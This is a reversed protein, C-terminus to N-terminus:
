TTFFTDLCTDLCMRESSAITSASCLCFFPLCYFLSLYVFIEHFVTPYVSVHVINTSLGLALSSYFRFLFFFPLPSLSFCFSVVLSLCFSILNWFFESSLAYMHLSLGLQRHRQISAQIDKHRLVERRAEQLSGIYIILASCPKSRQHMDVYISPYFVLSLSLSVLLAFLLFSISVSWPPTCVGCVLCGGEGESMFCFHSKRETRRKGGVCGDEVEIYFCMGVYVCIQICICIYIYLCAHIYM